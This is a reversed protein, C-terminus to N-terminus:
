PATRAGSAWHHSTRQPLRRSHMNQTTAMNASPHGPPSSTPPPTPPSPQPPLQMGVQYLRGQDSFITIHRDYGASGAHRADSNAPRVVFLLEDSRVLCSPPPEKLTNPNSINLQLEPRHAYAQAAHAIPPRRRRHQRQSGYANRGGPLEPIAKPARVSRMEAAAFVEACGRM